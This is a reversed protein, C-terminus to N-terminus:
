SSSRVSTARPWRNTRGSPDSTLVPRSRDGASTGDYSRSAGGGFEPLWKSFGTSTWSRKRQQSGALLPAFATSGGCRLSSRARRFWFDDASPPGRSGPWTCCRRSGLGSCLNGSLASPRRLSTLVRSSPVLFRGGFAPWSFRLAGPTPLDWARGLRGCGARSRAPHPQFRVQGTPSCEVIGWPRGIM